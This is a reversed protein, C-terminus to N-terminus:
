RVGAQSDMVTFWTSEIVVVAEVAFRQNVEDVDLWPVGGLSPNFMPQRFDGLVFPAKLSKYGAVASGGAETAKLEVYASKSLEHTRVYAGGGRERRMAHVKRRQRPTKYRLPTFNSAAAPEVRLAAVWRSKLRSTNRKLATTYLKPSQIIQKQQAEFAQIPPIIVPRSFM